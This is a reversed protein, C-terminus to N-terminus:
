YGGYQPAFHEPDAAFRDRNEASAFYWKANKWIYSFKGKGKVARGETFYAVTDYGKLAVGFSNTNVKDFARGPVAWTGVIVCMLVALFARGFGKSNLRVVM